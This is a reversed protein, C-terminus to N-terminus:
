DKWRRRLFEILADSDFGKERDKVVARLDDKEEEKMVDSKASSDERM